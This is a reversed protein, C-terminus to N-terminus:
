FPETKAVDVVATLEMMKKGSPLKVLEISAVKDVWADTDAGWAEALNNQSTKNMTLTKMEGKYEVEFRAEKKPLDTKEDKFNSDVIVGSNKIVITDGNKVDSGKLFGYKTSSIIM